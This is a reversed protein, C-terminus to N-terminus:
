KDSTFVISDFVARAERTLEPNIPPRYQAVWIVARQGNLDVVRYTEHENQTSYWRSCQYASSAHICLKDGDCATIDVDGEVSHDFEFGSYDGVMVKVAPTSVTSKQAAMADVFSMPSPDVKVLAGVWECADTSVYDAPWWAVYVAGEGPHDPDNKGLVEGSESSWGDPVTIEFPATYGTALVLYTGADIDGNEPLLPVTGTDADEPLPSVTRAETTPFSASPLSVNDPEYQCGSLFGILAIAVLPLLHRSRQGAKELPTM